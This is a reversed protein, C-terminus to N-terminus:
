DRRASAVPWLGHGSLWQRALEFPRAPECSYSMDENEVLQLMVDQGSNRCAAVVGPLSDFAPSAALTRTGLLIQVPRTVQHLLAALDYRDDPGYKELFGSATAIFSVPQRCRILEDPRGDAVLRSAAEFTERFPDAQPHQMWHQHCFRPPSLCVIARVLPHPAHAQSYISKVSGMSHGVLVVERCGAQGLWHLWASVDHVCDAVTEFTAGGPCSGHIGPISCMGDHGRTNIRLATCDAEAARAAFQELPGPVCFHSGTGHILLFALRGPSVDGAIAGDLLLGDATTVRCLRASTDM